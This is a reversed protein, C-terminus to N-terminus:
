ITPAVRTPFIMFNEIGVLLFRLKDLGAFSETTDPRYDRGCVDLRMRGTARHETSRPATVRNPQEKKASDGRWGRRLLAACVSM